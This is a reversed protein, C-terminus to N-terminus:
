AELSRAQTAPRTLNSVASAPLVAQGHGCVVEGLLTGRRGSWCRRGQPLCRVCMQAELGVDKPSVTERWGLDQSHASPM